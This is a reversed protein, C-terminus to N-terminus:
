FPFTVVLVVSVCLIMLSQWLYNYAPLISLRSSVSLNKSFYWRGLSFWSSISFIFLGIIYTSISSWFYNSKIRVFLMFSLFIEFFYSLKGGLAILSLVVFLVRLLFSIMFFLGSIFLSLSLLLFFEIFSFAPDKFLYVFNIM